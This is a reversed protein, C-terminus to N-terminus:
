PAASAPETGVPEGAAIRWGSGTDIWRLQVFLIARPSEIRLKVMQQRGIAALGVVRTGTIRGALPAFATTLAERAAPEIFTAARAGDGAQLAARHADVAAALDAPLAAPDFDPPLHVLDPAVAEPAVDLLGGDVLPAAADGTVGGAKELAELLRREWDAVRGRAAADRTLRDLVVAGAAAHRREEELCRALIRRTPPEYVANTSALHRAYVTVLHPKLVRYVGAIRELTQRPGEPSELADMFAVMADNAPESEQAATRLEPLRRGWLDAHQACDWVHRGFLLKAPLEPTLAIWGGLGRMMREEAYRYNRIRRASDDVSFHGALSPSSM